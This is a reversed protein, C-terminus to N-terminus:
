PPSTRSCFPSLIASPAPHVASFPFSTAPAVSSPALVTAFLVLSTPSFVTVAAVFVAVFTPSFVTSPVFFTAVVVASPVLFAVLVATSPALFAPDAILFTTGYFHACLSTQTPPPPCSLHNGEKEM